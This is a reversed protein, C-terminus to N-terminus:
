MKENLKRNIRNGLFTKGIVEKIQGLNGVIDVVKKLGFSNEDQVPKLNKSENSLDVKQEEEITKKTSPLQTEINENQQTTMPEIAHPPDIPQNVITAAVSDLNAQEEYEDVMSIGSVRITTLTCYHEKGYHSLM